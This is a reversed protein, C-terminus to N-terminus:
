HLVVAPVEMIVEDAGVARDGSDLTEETHTIHSIYTHVPWASFLLCTGFLGSPEVDVVGLSKVTDKEFILLAIILTFLGQPSYSFADYAELRM